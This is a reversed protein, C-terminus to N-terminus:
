RSHNIEVRQLEFFKSDRMQEIGQSPLMAGARAFADTRGHIRYKPFFKDGPGAPARRSQDCLEGMIRQKAQRIRRGAFLTEITLADSWQPPIRDTPLM